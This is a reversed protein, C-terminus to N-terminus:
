DICTTKHQRTKGITGYDFSKPYNNITQCAYYERKGKPDTESGKVEVTAEKRRNGRAQQRDWEVNEMTTFINLGLATNKGARRVREKGKTYSTKKVDKDYIRLM